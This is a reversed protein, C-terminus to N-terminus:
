EGLRRVNPRPGRDDLRIVKPTAPEGGYTGGRHVELVIPDDLVILGVSSSKGSIKGMVTVEVFQRYNSYGRNAKTVEANQAQIDALKKLNSPTRPMPVRVRNDLNIWVENMGQGTASIEGSVFLSRGGYRKRGEPTSMEKLIQDHPTADFSWEAEPSTSDVLVVEGSGSDLRYGLELTGCMAQLVVLPAVNALTYTKPRRMCDYSAGYRYRYQVCGQQQAYPDIQIQASNVRLKIGRGQMLSVFRNFAESEQHPYGDTIVFESVVGSRLLAALNCAAPAPAPGPAPAPTDAAPAALRNTADTGVPEVYSAIVAAQVEKSAKVREAEARVASAEDIKGDRTLRQELETLRGTYQSVLTVIDKDRKLRLQAGQQRCRERLSKIAAPLDPEDEDPISNARGFRAIEAKAGLVGDLDGKGQAELQLADVAKQYKAPLQEVGQDCRAVIERLMAEYKPTLDALAAGPQANTVEGGVALSAIAGLVLFAAQLRM